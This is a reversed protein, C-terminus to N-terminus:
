RKMSRIYREGEIRAIDLDALDKGINYDPNRGSVFTDIHMQEKPKLPGGHQRLTVKLGDLNEEEEIVRGYIVKFIVELAIYNRVYSEILQRNVPVLSTNYVGEENKVSVMSKVQDAIKGPEEVLYSAGGSQRIRSMAEQQVQPKLTLLLQDCVEPNVRVDYFLLDDYAHYMMKAFEGAEGLKHLWRESDAIRGVLKKRADLSELKGLDSVNVRNLNPMKIRNARAWERLNEKYAALEMEIRRKEEFSKSECDQMKQSILLELNQFLQNAPIDRENGGGGTFMSNFNLEAEEEIGM